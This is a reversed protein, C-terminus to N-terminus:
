LYGLLAKQEEWSHPIANDRGRIVHLSLDAPQSGELISEVIEPALRTMRLVEAVWGPELKLDKALTNSSEYVNEDLLKQWYFAKGLTKIMSYDVSTKSPERRAVGPPVLVKSTHKKKITLPIFTVARGANTYERKEGNEEILLKGKYGLNSM